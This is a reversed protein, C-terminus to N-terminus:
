SQDIFDSAKSVAKMIMIMMFSQQCSKDHDNNDYVQWMLLMEMDM